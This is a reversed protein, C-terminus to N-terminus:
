RKAGYQAPRHALIRLEELQGSEDRIRAGRPLWHMRIRGELCAVARGDDRGEDGQLVHVLGHPRCAEDRLCVCRLRMRAEVGFVVAASLADSQQTFLRIMHPDKGNAAGVEDVRAEEVTHALQMGRLTGLRAEVQMSIAELQM